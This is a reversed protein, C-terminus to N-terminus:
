FKAVLSTTTSYDYNKFGPFAPLNDYMGKYAVKLSFTSNLISILSAEGNILYDSGASFNPIYEIWLKTQVTESHKHFYEQYYRGKNDYVNPLPDYRDEISYRYTFESFLNVVDTKAFYYKFGLDSNYRAKVGNFRNGEIVEGTVISFHPSVEREYKGNADWNRASVGESTEGYIYHGGFTVKNLDWDYINTTKTNTTQVEANGGSQILSLESEHVLKAWASASFILFLLILSQM